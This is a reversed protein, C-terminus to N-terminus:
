PRAYRDLHRCKYSITCLAYPRACTDPHLFCMHLTGGVYACEHRNGDMYQFDKSPGLWLTPVSTREPRHSVEDEIKRVLRDRGDEDLEHVGSTDLVGAVKRGFKDRPEDGRDKHTGSKVIDPLPPVAARGDSLM